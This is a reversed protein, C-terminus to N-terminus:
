STESRPEEASTRPRPALWQLYAQGLLLPVVSAGGILLWEDLGIPVVSLIAALPPWYVALLLLIMCLGLAGWVYPTRSIENDFLGSEPNRMNFVHLLRSISLTLFSVTVARETEMGMGGLAATFAGLITLAILVGYGGILGWLYPTVVSEDPDRPPRDMAEETGRGVGLALAPFVDNLVNLYLIQLPLLPLPFGFTAAAGVALIEGVNGSLLYVVFKRINDFIIRGQRVAEVISSFADDQLVMDAAERAVDTGRQGMAVGIDASRLAPADNVGDGTMAVVQGSAQFLDVLDLKQKPTVRAFVAARLLRERDEEGLTEISAFDAGKEVAFEDMQLGVADAVARATEPHDGTVMVVRIGAEQCREIVPRVDTRPPDLLGVLGLLGLEEYPPAEPDPVSKRALALVRLGDEALAESRRIWNRRHEDGLPEPGAETRVHSSAAIVAEPAGKVAVLLGEGAEHYTAMMNTDRNFEVTRVLPREELLTARARGAEAGLELLALELPDGTSRTPDDPDREAGNCLVGVEIAERLRGDAEVPPDLELARDALAMQGATMRNETLTGTKDTCILTTAGLTEVASLRRVYANRRLMVWMGHALAVTAVIPLGEPIAAVALAIGTEIMLLLSRGALLGAVAVAGAIGVTLWVLRHGLRDLKQELPTDGGEASEVMESIAGLETDMGTAVVVGQGTGETVATGKYGMCTREALPTEASVPEAEKAVPVSEGTLASEDVQLRDAGIIRLDAPILDGGGLLVVDGPVVEDAPITQEEGERRVRTTVQGLEQLAEMSRVARWETFFGIATNIALVVAIALAEITQGFVFSVGMAVVLLLVVLSKFQEWLIAAVSRHEIERLRNPGVEDLRREAEESSLGDAASEMASLVAEPAASWPVTDSASAEDPAAPESVVPDSM